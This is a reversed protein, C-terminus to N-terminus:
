RCNLINETIEFKVNLSLIEHVQTKGQQLLVTLGDGVDVIHLLVKPELSEGVSVGNVANFSTRNGQM